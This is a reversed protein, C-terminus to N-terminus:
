GALLTETFARAVPDTGLGIFVSTRETGGWLFGTVQLGTDARLEALPTRAYDAIELGERRLTLVVPDTADVQAVQLLWRPTWITLAVSRERRGLWGAIMGPAPLDSRTVVAELGDAFPAEHPLREDLWRELATRLAAPATDLTCAHTERTTSM